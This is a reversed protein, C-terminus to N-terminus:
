HRPEDEVRLDAKLQEVLGDLAPSQLLTYHDAEFTHIEARTLASWGPAAGEDEPQLSASARFLAVRGRYPCPTYGYLARLHRYFHEFRERLRARDIEPPLVGEGRGLELVRDLGAELDLGALVEPGFAVPRGSLRVLDAAFGALLATEDFGDHEAAPSSPDLMVILGVTGGSSEIQQAMEYAIVAGLSWGALLYPGEAQVERVAPLYQAALERLTPHRPHRGAAAPEPVARLGYVPRESGLRRALEVYVFVDGGVPHVLFLPRGAGGPHLRVLPSRDDPTWRRQVVEALREVTPAEFLAALPLKVGIAQEIRAMLRTAQLSHGGLDFFSDAMGVREVGLLDAWIGALIEEVPTRPAV